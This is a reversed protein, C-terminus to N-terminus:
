PRGAEACRRRRFPNCERREPPSNEETRPPVLTACRRAKGGARMVTHGARVSFLSQRASPKTKMHSAIAGWRASACCINRKFGDSLIVSTYSLLKNKVGDSRWPSEIKRTVGAIWGSYRETGHVM